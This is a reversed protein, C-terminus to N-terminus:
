QKVRGQLMNEYVTEKAGQILLRQLPPTHFLQPKLLSLGSEM